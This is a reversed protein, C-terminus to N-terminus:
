DELRELARRGLRLPLWTSLVFLVLLIGGGYAMRRLEVPALPRGYKVYELLQPVILTEAGIVFVVLTAAVIMYVVGGYSGAVKAVNEAKFSPYMAGLGVGLATVSLTLLMITGVSCVFLVPPAALMLNSGVALVFGLACLPLLSSLFKGRLFARPTVPAARIIWFARGEQSVAPFVFRVAVAATVFGSLALNLFYLFYRGLRGPVEVAQFSKFNFVYVVILAFLLLLQSWQSADRFFIRMDKLAVTRASGPLPLLALRALREFTQSGALRAKRGEQTRSLGRRYMRRGLAACLLLAAASWGVLVPYYTWSEGVEGRLRPFLSEAAWYSPLWTQSPSRFSSLFQGLERFGSDPDVLKEPELFRFLLYLLVLVVVSLVVVADRTRRAPFVNALVLALSVGAAAPLVLFPVLVLLLWLYYQPPAEYAAGCAVFVPLGFLVVMWSSHFSSEVFRAGFLGGTSVPVGGLLSLDESLFLVSFATITNSFLLVALFVLFTIAFVKEVLADALGVLAAEGRVRTLFWYTLAYAGAWFAVGVLALTGTRLVGRASVSASPRLATRLKPKLLATIESM